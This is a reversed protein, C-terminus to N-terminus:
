PTLPLTKPLPVGGEIGGEPPSPDTRRPLPDEGRSPPNLPTNGEAETVAVIELDEAFHYKLLWELLVSASSHSSILLFAGGRDPIVVVYDVMKGQATVFATAVPVDGKGLDNTSMKNLFSLADPGKIYLMAFDAQYSFITNTTSM